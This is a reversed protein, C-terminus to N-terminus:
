SIIKSRHVMRDKKFKTDLYRSAYEVGHPVFFKAVERGDDEKESVLQVEPGLFKLHKRIFTNKKTQCDVSSDYTVQILCGM